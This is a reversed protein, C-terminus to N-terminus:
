EYVFFKKMPRKCKECIVTGEILGEAYPIVTSHSCPGPLSPPELASRIAGSFGLKAVNNGWQSFLNLRQMLEKGQLQVIDTSSSGKGIVAWGSDSFDLLASVEDLIHDNDATKRLRLKSRRMSELRLWFFQTTTFSLSGTLKEEAISAVINRVHDDPRNRNGVYVMELQVGTSKIEKMKSIFEQIWKQNESGYICLDRDEEVWSALLPDINDILLQMTWNQEEWLQEERSASFPYAWAGWSIVMDIANSNTVMGRSDLVVMLPEGKYNWAQKMSNVVASSHLWPQRISCWPLYNSFFNFCRVEDDTWTDSYSIPFWVIEYNGKYNKNLPHDYTQQVLFLLEEIPLLEPKSILLVVVKNELESVGLKAQSSCDKLPLADKSAFLMHLVEQNNITPSEKFLELLKQCLKREFKIAGMNCNNNFGFEHVQEPKMAILDTILSSCALASRTVWYASAYIYSKTVDVEKDLEVHSLPLGEFKIIYKTVDVMNKVLFNLAKFRPKLTSLDNPLQKLMAVSVALPNHPCLERLLWFEGYNTAFAALVIVMKADWKYKRIAMADFQLDSVLPTLPVESYLIIYQIARLFLESDLCRGDPDHTLLLKKIQIDEDLYLPSRWFPDSGLFNM